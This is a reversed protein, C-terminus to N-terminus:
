GKMKGMIAVSKMKGDIKEFFIISLKRYNQEAVVSSCMSVYHPM